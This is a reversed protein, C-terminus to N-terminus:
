LIPVKKDSHPIRHNPNAALFCAYQANTVPYRGIRYTPLNLEFRPKENDSAEPDNVDSGMWFPGAPIEITVPIDLSVPTSPADFSHTETIEAQAVVKATTIMSELDAQELLSIGHTQAANRAQKSFGKKSVIVGENILRERRLLEVIQAFDNVIKIGVPRIYDKAEVAICHLHRGPTELEVYVDIQNGAMEVDHEVKRAGMQRYANAVWLELEKGTKAKETM